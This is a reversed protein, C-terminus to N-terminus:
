FPILDEDFDELAVPAPRSAPKRVPEKRPEESRPKGDLLILEAVRVEASTKTTGDKAEYERLSLEGRVLIRSGKQCYDGMVDALKEWCTLRFWTTSDKYGSVALSGSAVKKDDKTTRVEPDRGLRGTITISNMDM